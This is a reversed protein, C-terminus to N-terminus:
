NLDRRCGVRRTEIAIENCGAHTNRRAREALEDLCTEIVDLDRNLVAARIGGIRDGAVFASECALIREGVLDDPKPKEQGDVHDHM